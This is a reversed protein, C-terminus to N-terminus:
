PHASPIAAQGLGAVVVSATLIASWRGLTLRIKDRRM